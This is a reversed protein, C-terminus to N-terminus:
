RAGGEGSSHPQDAAPGPRVALWGVLALGVGSMAMLALFSVGQFNGYLSGALMTSLGMLIGSSLASHLAQASAAQDPAVREQIAHVTGLHTAGFTLGHLLQLVILMGFSPDAAMLGWRVVGGAAGIGIMWIAGIRKLVRGAYAFLVVEAVVGVAWLIGFWRGDIGQAQWHIASFAYYVAHSAQTVGGALMVVLLGHRALAARGDQWTLAKRPTVEGSRGPLWFGATLALASGIIVITLITSNGYAAIALGGVVNAAIFAVSGWLRMRGYDVGRERVAQMAAVEALPMMAMSAVQFLTFFVLIFWVGDGVALAIGAVLAATATLLVIQRVSQARDAAVGIMPTAVIRIFLPVSTVLGIEFATLGQSKLWLPFYPLSVGLVIFIASYFFAIRWALSTASHLQPM